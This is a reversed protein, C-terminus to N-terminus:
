MEVVIESRIEPMGHGFVCCFLLCKLTMSPEWCTFILTTYLDRQYAARNPKRLRPEAEEMGVRKSIEAALPLVKCRRSRLKSVLYLGNNIVTQRISVITFFFRPILMQINGFITTVGLDDMKVPNEM